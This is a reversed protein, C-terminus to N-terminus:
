KTLKDFFWLLYIFLRKYIDDFVTQIKVLIDAPVTLRYLTNDTAVSM